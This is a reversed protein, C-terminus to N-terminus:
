SYGISSLIQVVSDAKILHKENYTSAWPIRVYNKNLKCPRYDSEILATEKGNLVQCWRALAGCNPMTASLLILRCEPNLKSFSMLAAETSDGRGDVGLLHIEDVILVGVNKLWENKESKYLRARTALMENTMIVVKAQSVEKLKQATMTYDGTMIAQNHKSFEHEDSEFDSIKEEALAKMPALYIASKDTENFVCGMVMEAVVTKGSATPAAVVINCDSTVYPLVKTQMPNFYEFDWSMYPYDVSRGAPIIENIGRHEVEHTIVSKPEPTKLEFCHNKITLLVAMARTEDPEGEASLLGFFRNRYEGSLKLVEHRMERFRKSLKLQYESDTTKHRVWHLRDNFKFYQAMYEVIHARQNEDTGGQIFRIIDTLSFDPVTPLFRLWGLPLTKTEELCVKCWTKDESEVKESKASVCKSCRDFEKLRFGDIKALLRNEWGPIRNIRTRKAFPKKSIADLFVFRIADEGCGRSVDQSISSYIELNFLTPLHITYVVENGKLSETYGKPLVSEFEDKTIEVYRMNNM